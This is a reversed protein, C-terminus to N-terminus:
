FILSASFVFSFFLQSSFKQYEGLIKASTPDSDLSLVSFGPIPQSTLYFVAHLVDSAHTRNHDLFEFLTLPSSRLPTSSHSFNPCSSASEIPLMLGVWSVSKSIRNSKPLMKFPYWRIPKRSKVFLQSYGIQSVHNTGIDLNWPTFSSSSSEFRFKSLKLSDWKPSFETARRNNGFFLFNSTNVPNRTNRPLNELQTM